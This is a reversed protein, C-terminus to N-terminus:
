GSIHIIDDDPPDANSQGPLRRDSGSPASDVMRSSPQHHFLLHCLASFRYRTTSWLNRAVKAVGLMMVICLIHIQLVIVEVRKQQRHRPLKRDAQHEHLYTEEPARM